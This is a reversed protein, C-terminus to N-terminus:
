DTGYRPSRPGFLISNPRGATLMRDSALGAYRFSSDSLSNLVQKIAAAVLMGILGGGNNNSEEASSATGTGSWLEKGTRLDVLKANATVTVQSGLVYYQSGYQLITVYLAADAGFIDRLKQPPVAHMDGATTLGNQQFTEDVLTVPMVYYGSEALPRTMQSLLGYGGKIEPSNNQPPLILVSKPRSEKFATYDLQKPAVCATALLAVGASVLVTKFRSFRM